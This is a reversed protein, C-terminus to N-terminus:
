KGPKIIFPLGKVRTADARMRIGDKAKHEIRIPLYNLEPACWITTAREDASRHLKITKYRGLPIQITETGILTFDYNRIKRSDAITYNFSKKGAQLDMMLQLQYLLKDSTHPQIKNSWIPERKSDSVIGKEWDFELEIHKNKKGGRRQYHYHLPRLQGQQYKWQSYESIRDKLFWSISKAPRSNSSFRFEGDDLQQLNRKMHIIVMNGGSIDYDIEFPALSPRVSSLSPTTDAAIHVSTLSLLLLSGFILFWPRYSRNM